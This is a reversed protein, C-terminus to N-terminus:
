HNRDSEPLPPVVAASLVFGRPGEALIAGDLTGPRGPIRVAHSGPLRGSGREGIRVRAIDVAVGRGDAKVAAELLTWGAIDPPDSPAFLPALGALREHGGEGPAPEIDIGVASAAAQPVAAAAVTSGAYSLSVAVPATALRPRGHDAGCHVCTTTFGPDGDATLESILRALLWRGVVFRHAEPGRLQAYRRLQQSTALRQMGQRRLAPMAAADVWALVAPGFRGRGVLSDDVGVRM